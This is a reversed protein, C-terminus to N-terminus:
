ATAETVCRYANSAGITQALVTPQGNQVSPDEFVTNARFGPGGSDLYAIDSWLGGASLNPLAEVSAIFGLEGHTPLRLGEDWCDLYANPQATGARENSYCLDGVRSLGAPCRLVGTLSTENIDTGTLSDNIVKPSNVSNKKIDSKHVANKKIDGSDVSNKGPLAVATGSLAIFVAILGYVNRRLHNGVRSSLSPNTM